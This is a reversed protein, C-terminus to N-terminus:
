LHSISRLYHAAQLSYFQALTNIDKYEKKSIYVSLLEKYSMAPLMFEGPWPHCESCKKKCQWDDCM